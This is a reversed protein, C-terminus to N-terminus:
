LFQLTRMYQIKQHITLAEEFHQQIIKLDFDQYDIIMEPIEIVCDLPTIENENLVDDIFVIKHISTNLQNAIIKLDKKFFIKKDKEYALNQVEVRTTHDRHFLPYNDYGLFDIIQKAYDYTARTYFFLKFNSDIFKLFHDVHNRKHLAYKFPKCEFYLEADDPRDSLGYYRETVILTEDIDLGVYIDNM